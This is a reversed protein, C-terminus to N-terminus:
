HWQDNHKNLSFCDLFNYKKVCKLWKLAWTIHLINWILCINDSYTHFSSYLHSITLDSTWLSQNESRNPKFHRKIAASKTPIYIYINMHQQDTILSTWAKLWANRRGNRTQTESEWATKDESNNIKDGTNRHKRWYEAHKPRTNFRQKCDSWVHRWTQHSAINIILHIIM